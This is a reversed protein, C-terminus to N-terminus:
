EGTYIEKIRQLNFENKIRKSIVITLDAPSKIQCNSLKFSMLLIELIDQSSLATDMQINSSNGILPMAISNCEKIRIIETWMKLYCQMLEATTLRANNNENFHSLAVLIFGTKSDFFSSGLNYCINKNFDRGTTTFAIEKSLNKDNLIRADLDKCSINHITLFKGHLTEPDIIGDGVHTDFYENVGIIRYTKKKYDKNCFIDGFRITIKTQNITISVSNRNRLFLYNFIFTVILFVFLVILAIIKSKTTILPVFVFVVSAIALILSFILLYSKIVYKKFAFKLIEFIKM